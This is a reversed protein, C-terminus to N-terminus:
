FSLNLHHELLRRIGTVDDMRTIWEDCGKELAERVKKKSSDDSVILLVLDELKSQRKLKECLSLAEEKLSREDLIVADWDGSNKTKLTQEFSFRSDFLEVQAGKKTSEQLKDYMEKDETVFALKTANGGHQLKRYDSIDVIKSQALSKIAKRKSRVM